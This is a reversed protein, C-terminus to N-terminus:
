QAAVRDPTLDGPTRCGLLALTRDFEDGLIQLARAAGATGGAALGYALARGLLVGEAGLALAKAIDGGRRVGGDVLISARGGIERVVEPLADMGSIASDLQRGGHNSLIVGDVGCEVALAADDARLVGKLLLKGKWLDRFRRLDDWCLSPDFMKSPLFSAANRGAEIGREVVAFRPRRAAVTMLWRPHMLIDLKTGLTLRADPRLGSRLDRERKGSVPFDSTIILAEFGAEAARRILGESVAREQFVYCQFWLRGRAARAVEEMSDMSSTSLAFPIGAGAAARALELDGHHRVMGLLGVPAAIVPLASPAGLIPAATSRGSVGVLTRPRFRLREFSRRNADLTREDEAGGDLFDFVFRPVRKRAMGRLDEVNIAQAVDPM